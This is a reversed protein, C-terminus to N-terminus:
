CDWKGGVVAAASLGVGPRVRMRTSLLLMMMHTGRRPRRGEIRQKAGGRPWFEHVAGGHVARERAQRGLLLLFSNNNRRRGSPDLHSRGRLELELMCVDSVSGIGLVGGGCV